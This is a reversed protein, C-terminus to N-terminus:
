NGWAYELDMLKCLKAQCDPATIYQTGAFKTVLKSKSNRRKLSQTTIRKVLQNDNNNNDNIMYIAIALSLLKGWNNCMKLADLVACSCSSTVPINHFREKQSTLQTVTCQPIRYITSKM